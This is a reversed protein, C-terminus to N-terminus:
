DTKENFPQYNHEIVGILDYVNMGYFDMMEKGCEPCKPKEDDGSCEGCFVKRCSSCVCAGDDWNKIDAHEIVELVQKHCRVCDAQYESYTEHYM